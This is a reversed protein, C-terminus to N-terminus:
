YISLAGYLNLMIVKPLDNYPIYEPHKIELGVSYLDNINYQYRLSFIIGFSHIFSQPGLNANAGFGAWVTHRHSDINIRFDMRFNLGILTYHGELPDEYADLGLGFYLIKYLQQDANVSVLAMFPMREEDSGYLIGKAFGFGLSVQGSPYKSSSHVLPVKNENYLIGQSFITNTYFFAILITWIKM